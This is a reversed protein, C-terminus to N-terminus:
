VQMGTRLTYARAVHSSTPTHTEELDAISWAVRLIRDYGRMSIRGEEFSQDLVSTTSSPLRNEPHRLWSGSVDANLRWGTEELRKRARGRAETVRARIESSTKGYRRRGGLHNNIM